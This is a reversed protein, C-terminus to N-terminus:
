FLCFEHAMHGHPDTFKTKTKKKKRECVLIITNPKEGGGQMREVLALM